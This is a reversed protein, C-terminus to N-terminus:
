EKPLKAADRADQLCTLVEIYSQVSGPDVSLGLCTRKSDAAFNEWDKALQERANQEDRLCAETNAKDERPASEERCTRSVDFRPVSQAIALTTEFGLSLTSLLLLRAVHAM